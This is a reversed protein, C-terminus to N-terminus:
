IKIKIVINKKRILILKLGFIIKSNILFVKLNKALLQNAQNDYNTKTCDYDNARENDDIDIKELLGQWKEGQDSEYNRNDHNEASSVDINYFDTYELSAKASAFGGVSHRWISIREIDM